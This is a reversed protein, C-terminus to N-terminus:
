QQIRELTSLVKEVYKQNPFPGHLPANRASWSNYVALGRPWGFNQINWSLIQVAMWVNTEPNKLADFTMGQWGDINFKNACVGDPGPLCLIQMLGVSVDHPPNDRVADPNLNSEVIAIAKLLAAKDVPVAPLFSAYNDFLADLTPAASKEAATARSSFLVAAGVLVSAALLVLWM